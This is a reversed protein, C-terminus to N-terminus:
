LECYLAEPPPPAESEATAEGDWCVNECEDSSRCRQTCRTRVCRADLADEEGCEAEGLCSKGAEADLIAACTTVGEDISCFDTVSTGEVNARGRLRASFRASPCPATGEPARRACSAQDLLEGAFRMFICEGDDCEDSSTCPRCTPDAPVPVCAGDDCFTGDFAGCDEDDTCGECRSMSGCRALEPTTCPRVVDCFPAECAGETCSLGGDCDEDGTCQVCSGSDENCFPTPAECEGCAGLEALDATQDVFDIRRGDDGCALALPLCLFITVRMAM